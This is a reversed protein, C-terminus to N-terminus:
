KDSCEIKDVDLRYVEVDNSQSQQSSVTAMNPVFIDGSKKKNDGREQFLYIQDITFHIFFVASYPSYTLLSEGLLSTSERFHTSFSIGIFVITIDTNRCFTAM